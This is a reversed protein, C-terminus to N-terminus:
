TRCYVGEIISFVKNDGKSKEQKVNKRGEIRQSM